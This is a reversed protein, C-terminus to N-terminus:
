KLGAKSSCLQQCINALLNAALLPIALLYAALMNAATSAVFVESTEGRWDFILGDTLSKPSFRLGNKM